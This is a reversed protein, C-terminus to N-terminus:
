KVFLLGFHYQDTTVLGRMKLGAQEACKEIEDESVRDAVGPGFPTEQKKWDIVLIQGKKGPKILRKATMLTAVKDKTQFLVSKLIVVNISDAPIPMAEPNELDAWVTKINLLGELKAKSQIESLPEKQIDVAYVTGKEGVLRAAPITFFGAGCGLDAVQMGETISLTNLVIEPRMFGTALQFATTKIGRDLNLGGGRFNQMVEETTM